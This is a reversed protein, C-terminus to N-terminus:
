SEGMGYIYKKVKGVNLFRAGVMTLIIMWNSLKVIGLITISRSIWGVTFLKCILQPLQKYKKKCKTQAPYDFYQTWFDSPNANRVENLTTITNRQFIPLHMQKKKKIIIKIKEMIAPQCHETSKRSYLLTVWDYMWTYM